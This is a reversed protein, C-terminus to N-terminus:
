VIMFIFTASWVCIGLTPLYKIKVIYKYANKLYEHVIAFTKDIWPSTNVPIRTKELHM